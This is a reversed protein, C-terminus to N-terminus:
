MHAKKKHEMLEEKTGFTMSCVPCLIKEKGEKNETQPKNEKGQVQVSVTQQVAPGEKGRGTALSFVSFILWVVFGWVVGNTSANILQWAPFGLVPYDTMPINLLEHIMSGPPLTLPMGLSAAFFVFFFIVFIVAGIM